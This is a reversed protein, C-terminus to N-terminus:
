DDASAAGRVRARQQEIKAAIEPYRAECAAYLLAIKRWRLPANLLEFVSCNLIEACRILSFEPPAPQGAEGDTCWHM